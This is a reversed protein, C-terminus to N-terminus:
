AIREKQTERITLNTAPCRRDIRYLLSRLASEQPLTPDFHSPNLPAIPPSMGIVAAVAASTCISGIAAYKVNGGGMWTVAIAFIALFTISGYVFVATEFQYSVIDGFDNM